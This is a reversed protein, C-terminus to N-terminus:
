CTEDLPPRGVSKSGRSVRAAQQSAAARHRLPETGGGRQVDRPRYEVDPSHLHLPDAWLPGTEAAPISARRLQDRLADALTTSPSVSLAYVMGNVDFTIPVAGPSAADNETVRASGPSDPLTKKRMSIGAAGTAAAM